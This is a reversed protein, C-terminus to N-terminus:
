AAEIGLHDLLKRPTSVWCQGVKTAPLLGKELLHFAQRETRNIVRGIAKAGWAPRDLDITLDTTDNKKM